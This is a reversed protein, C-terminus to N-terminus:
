GCRSFDDMLAVGNSALRGYIKTADGQGTYFCLVKFPKRSSRGIIMVGDEWIFNSVGQSKLYGGKAKLDSPTIEASGMADTSIEACRVKKYTDYQKQCDVIHALLADLAADKIPPLAVSYTTSLQGPPAEEGGTIAKKLKDIQGITSDGLGKLQKPFILIVLVGVIIAMLLYPAIEAVGGRRNM